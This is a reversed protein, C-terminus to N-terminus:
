LEDRELDGPADTRSREFWALAMSVHFAAGRALQDDDMLFQPHHLGFETGKAADGIGLFSFVSPVARGYYSFDEAAMSPESLLKFSPGGVRSAIQVMSADNITPPYPSPSWGFSSVNCGYVTATQVAVQEIRQHLRDNTETTLARLTGKVSVEGPIVNSAGEGTNIRTVSIVASDTPSTERSVLAQLALVIASTAVVPDIALHPIAAHGGRGVVVFSFRDSAAM